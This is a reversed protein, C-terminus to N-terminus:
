VSSPSHDLPKITSSNASMAVAKLQYLEGSYWSIKGNRVLLAVLVIKITSPTGASWRAVSM